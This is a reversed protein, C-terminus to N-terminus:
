DQGDTIINLRVLFYIKLLYQKFDNIDFLEGVGRTISVCKLM